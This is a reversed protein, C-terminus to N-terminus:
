HKEATEVLKAAPIGAAPKLIVMKSRGEKGGALYVLKTVPDEALARGRVGSAFERSPGMRGGQMVIANIAGDGAVAYLTNGTADLWLRDVGAGAPVRALETGSDAEIQLVAYRAAVFLTHTVPDLLLGTPQSAALRVRSTVAGGNRAPDISIIENTDELTVRVLRREADWAMQRPRGGVDITALEAAQKGVSEAAVVSVSGNAPNTVFLSRMGAVYLVDDPAHKLGITGEIVWTKSNLLVVNNTGAAAIYVIGTQTDLAMGRPDSVGQVQGTLRRKVPDFIDVTDTGHHAILLMGNAFLSEDFGPRGPLDIVAVQRLRADQAELSAFAMLLMTAALARRWSCSIFM